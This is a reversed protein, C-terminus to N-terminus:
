PALEPPWETYIKTGTRDREDSFESLAELALSGDHSVLQGLKLWQNIARKTFRLAVQPGEAFLRAYKLATGTLESRPVALSVLGIREAQEGTLGRSTMLYLKAKALGTYLPWLGGPGDGAAIGLMVHPDFLWTDEVMISIDALMVVALGAGGAAGNVAAVVPKPFQSMERILDTVEGEMHLAFQWHPDMEGPPLASVPSPRGSLYFEEGGVGTLLVTKVEDDGAFVRWIETLERHQHRRLERDDSGSQFPLVVHAIGGDLNVRLGELDKYVERM